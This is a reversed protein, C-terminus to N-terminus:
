LKMRLLDSPRSEVITMRGAGVNKNGEWSYNSGVGTPPGDFSRKMDPDLKEWPSWSGWRNLDNVQDFVESPPGPIVASRVIRFDAPRLSVIIFFVALVIGVGILIKILM